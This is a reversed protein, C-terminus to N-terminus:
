ADPTAPDNPQATASQPPSAAPAAATSETAQGRGSERLYIGYAILILGVLTILATIFRNQSTNTFQAYFFLGALLLAVVGNIIIAWPIAGTARRVLYAGALGVLGVLALGVALVIRGAEVTGVQAFFLAFITLGTNIAIGSRLLTAASLGAQERNKLSAYAEIGGVIVLVAALIQGLLIRSQEPELFAYIGFGAALIGEAVVLWWAANRRWPIGRNLTSKVHSSVSQMSM